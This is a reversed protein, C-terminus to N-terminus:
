WIKFILSKIFDYIQTLNPKFYQLAELANMWMIKEILGAFTKGETLLETEQKESEDVILVQMQKKQKKQGLSLENFYSKGREGKKQDVEGGRFVGRFFVM